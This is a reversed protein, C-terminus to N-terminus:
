HRRKQPPNAPDVVYFELLHQELATQLMVRYRGFAPGPNFTFIVQGTPLIILDDRNIRGGDLPTAAVATGVKSTPFQLTIPVTQNPRVMVMPVIGNFSALHKEHGAGNAATVELQATAPTSTVVQSLALDCAVLVLIISLTVKKIM